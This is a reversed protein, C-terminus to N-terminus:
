GSWDEFDQRARLRTVITLHERWTRWALLSAFCEALPECWPGGNSCVSCREQHIWAADVFEDLLLQCEAADAATWVAPTYGHTRASTPSRRQAQARAGTRIAVANM